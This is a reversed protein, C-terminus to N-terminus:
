ASRGVLYPQWFRQLVDLYNNWGRQYLGERVAYPTYGSASNGASSSSGGSGTGPVSGDHSSPATESSALIPRIVEGTTYFIVPIRRRAFNDSTERLCWAWYRSGRQM